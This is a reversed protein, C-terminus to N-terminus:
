TPMRINISFKRHSRLQFRGVSMQLVVSGIGERLPPWSKNLVGKSRVVVNFETEYSEPIDRLVGSKSGLVLLLWPEVAKSANRRPADDARRGRVIRQYSWLSDSQEVLARYPALASRALFQDRAMNMLETGPAVPREYRDVARRDDSRQGLRLQEPNFLAGGGADAAPAALELVRV